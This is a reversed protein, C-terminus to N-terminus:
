IPMLVFNVNISASQKGPLGEAVNQYYKYYGHSLGHFLVNKYYIRTTYGLQCTLHNMKQFKLQSYKLENYFCVNPPINQLRITDEIAIMVKFWPQAISHSKIRNSNSSRPWIRYMKTHWLHINNPLNQPCTKSFAQQQKIAENQAAKVTLNANFLSM